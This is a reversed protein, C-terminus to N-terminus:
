SARGTRPEATSRSRGSSTNSTASGCERAHRGTGDYVPYGSWKDVDPSTKLSSPVSSSVVVASGTFTFCTAIAAPSTVAARVAATAKVTAPGSPTPMAAAPTAPVPYAACRTRCGFAPRGPTRCEHSVRVRRVRVVVVFVPVRVHGNVPLWCFRATDPWAPLCDDRDRSGDRVLERARREWARVPVPAPFRDVGEPRNTPPEAVPLRGAFRDILPPNPGPPFGEVGLRDGSFSLLERTPDSAREFVPVGARLDVGDVADRDRRVPDPPVLPRKEFGNCSVFLRLRCRGVVPVGVRFPRSESPGFFVRPPPFSARRDNPGPVVGPREEDFPVDRRIPRGPEPLNLGHSPVRPPRLRPPREVPDRFVRRASRM